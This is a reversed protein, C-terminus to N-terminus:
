AYLSRAEFTKSLQQELVVKADRLEREEVRARAWQASAKVIDTDTNLSSLRAEVEPRIDMRKWARNQASTKPQGNADFSTGSLDDLDLEWYSATREFVENFLVPVEEERIGESAKITELVVAFGEGLTFGQDELEKLHIPLQELGASAKMQAEVIRTDCARLADSLHTSLKSLAPAWSELAASKKVPERREIGRRKRISTEIRTLAEVDNYDPKGAERLMVDVEEITSAGTGRTAEGSEVPSQSDLRNKGGDSQAAFNELEKLNKETRPDRPSTMQDPTSVPFREPIEGSTRSASKKERLFRRNLMTSIRHVQENNLQYAGSAQRVAEAASVKERSHISYAREAIDSLKLNM